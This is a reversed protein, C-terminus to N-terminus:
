AIVSLPEVANTVSNKSYLTFLYSGEDRDLM